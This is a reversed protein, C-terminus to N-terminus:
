PSVTGVPLVLTTSAIKTCRTRRACRRPAVAALAADDEALQSALAQIGHQVKDLPLRTGIIGTSLHLM